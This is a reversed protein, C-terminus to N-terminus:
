ITMLEEEKEKLKEDVKKNFDNILDQVENMLSKEMDENIEEDKKIANNADQRINRLAIKAEEALTKAQKVFERRRDETLEPIAIFILEGTNNPTLGLDAEFIAKEINALCSKDFPKIQLRRAEPVSVTALQNLPTPTGYYEVKVGDLIAPNARGARITKFRELLNEITKEMKENAELIIEDLADPAFHPIRGDNKVEQAVFRVLKKRNEPTDEMSDKMFVEYGYGRIRSRMAIHMGELVQLNGSAVLVFDCPVAQSRVMAGSSNESQGTIAYKKEQMASLLEQQTKMTMTGIEDIYLVGKNAKHIMGSEVREHAPTGLGGSQYPDHRVDGLLAGAHAGTADMFPAFRKDENNVLLKPSM